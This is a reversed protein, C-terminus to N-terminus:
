SARGHKAAERRLQKKLAATGAGIMAPRTPIVSPDPEQTVSKALFFAIRGDGTFLARGRRHLDHEGARTGHFEAAAPITLFKARVPRITGGYYRQAIGEHPIRVIVGQPSSLNQVSTAAAAYFNTRPGKLRNPHATNYDLLHKRVVIAIAHGAVTAATRPSMASQIRRLLSSAADRVSAALFSGRSDKNQSAM